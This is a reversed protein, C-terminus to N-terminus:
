EFNKEVYCFFIFRILFIIVLNEPLDPNSEMNHWVKQCLELFSNLDCESDENFDYLLPTYGRLANLLYHTKQSALDDEGLTSGALDVFM